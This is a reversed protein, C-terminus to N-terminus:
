PAWALARPGTRAPKAYAKAEEIVWDRFAAIKPEESREEAYVIYYAHPAPLALGFPQVLHGAAIDDAVLVSRGLAVGQGEIAAQILLNSHTFSMRRAPELDPLGAATKWAKWDILM